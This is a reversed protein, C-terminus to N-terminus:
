QAKEPISTDEIPDVSIASLSLSHNQSHNQNVHTNDATSITLTRLSGNSRMHETRMVKEQRQMSQTAKKSVVVLAIVIGIMFAAACVIGALGSVGGIKDFPGANPTTTTPTATAANSASVGTSSAFLALDADSSTAAESQMKSIVASAFLSSGTSAQTASSLRLIVQANADPSSTSPPLLIVFHVVVGEETPISSTQSLSRTSSLRRGSAASRSYITFSDNKDIIESVFVTAFEAGQVGDHVASTISSELLEVASESVFADSPFGRFLLAASLASSGPQASTSAQAVPLRQRESASAVPSSSISSILTQTPTRSPSATVNM